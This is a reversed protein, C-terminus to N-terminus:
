VKQERLNILRRRITADLRRSPTEIAVGGLVAPEVHEILEVRDGGVLGSVQSKLSDDIVHATTVDVLTVGRTEFEAYIDRIINDLEGIRNEQVIYAAVQRIVDSKPNDQLQDVVHRAIRKRSLKAM